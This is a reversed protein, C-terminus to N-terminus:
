YVACDKSAKKRRTGGKKGGAVSAKETGTPAQTNDPKKRHISVTAGGSKIKRINLGKKEKQQGFCGRNV